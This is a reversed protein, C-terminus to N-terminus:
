SSTIRDDFIKASRLYGPHVDLGTVPLFRSATGFFRSPPFRYQSTDREKGPDQRSRTAGLTAVTPMQWEPISQLWSLAEVSVSGILAVM